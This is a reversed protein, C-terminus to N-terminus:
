YPVSRCEKPREHMQGGTNYKKILSGNLFIKVTSQSDLLIGSNPIGETHIHFSFGHVDEISFRYMLIQVGNAKYLKEPCSSVYHYINHCQFFKINQHGRGDKGDVLFIETGTLDAKNGNISLFALEGTTSNTTPWSM